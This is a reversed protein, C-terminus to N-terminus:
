YCIKATVEGNRFPRRDKLHGSTRNSAGDGEIGLMVCDRCGGALRELKLSGEALLEGRLAEVRTLISELYARPEEQFPM